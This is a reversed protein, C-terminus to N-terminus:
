RSHLKLMAAEPGSDLLVEVAREADILANDIGAKDDKSPAKLVYNAVQRADGPHDIGLRLRLFGKEGTKAIIDRLGNHGGHGGGQKLKAIGAAFDLEDHAVLMATAPIKYFQLAKQVADGSLNMFTLPKLLIIKSLGRHWEAVEANFKKDYRWRLGNASVLADLLWFGANHRTKAYKDGPNGLGVILQITM